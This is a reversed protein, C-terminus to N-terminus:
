DEIFVNRHTNTTNWHRVSLIELAQTPQRGCLYILIALKERFTSVYTLYQKIANTRFCQQGSDVFRHLLSHDSCIRSLLWQSGDVPWITRSDM